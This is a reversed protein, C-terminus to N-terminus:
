SQLDNGAGKTCLALSQAQSVLASGKQVLANVPRFEGKCQRLKPPTISCGALLCLALFGFTMRM